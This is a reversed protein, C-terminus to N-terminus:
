ILLIALFLGGMVGLCRYLKKKGRLEERMEKMALDLQEDLLEIHKIQVQTDATGLYRGLDALRDMERKPIQLDSLCERVTNEWLIDFTGGDRDEMQGCLKRLWTHYPEKVTGALSLFAETLFAKSYRIESELMYLLQRIYKMEDYSRDLDMAARIGLLSAAAIVLVSGALKM